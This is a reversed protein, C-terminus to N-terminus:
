VPKYLHVSYLNTRYLKYTSVVVESTGSCLAFIHPNSCDNALGKM